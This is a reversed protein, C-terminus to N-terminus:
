ALEKKTMSANAVTHSPLTVSEKFTVSPYVLMAHTHQPLGQDHCSRSKRGRPLFPHTHSRRAPRARYRPSAPAQAPLLLTHSMMKKEKPTSGLTVLAAKLGKDSFPAYALGADTLPAYEPGASTVPADAPGSNTVSTCAHGGLCPHRALPWGQTRKRSLLTHSDQTRSLLTHSDPTRSLHPYPGSHTVPSIALGTNTVPSYAPGTNTVLAFFLTRRAHTRVQCVPM